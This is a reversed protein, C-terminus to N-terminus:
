SRSIFAEPVHLIAYDAKVTAVRKALTNPEAESRTMTPTFHCCTTAIKKLSSSSKYKTVRPCSALIMYKKKFIWVLALNQTAQLARLGRLGYEM